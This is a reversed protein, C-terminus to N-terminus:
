PVACRAAPGTQLAVCVSGARQAAFCLLVSRSRRVYSAAAVSGLGNSNWRDGMWLLLQEGDAFTYTFVHTSQLRPAHSLAQLRQSGASQQLLASDTFGATLGQWTSTSPQLELVARGGLRQGAPM